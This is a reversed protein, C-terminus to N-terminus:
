PDECAEIDIAPNKQRIRGSDPENLGGNGATLVLVGAAAKGIAVRQGLSRSCMIYMWEFKEAQLM